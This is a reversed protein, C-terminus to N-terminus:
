RFTYARGASDIATITGAGNIDYSVVTATGTRLRQSRNRYLRGLNTVFAVTDNEAVKFSVVDEGTERMLWGGRTSGLAGDETRFFVTGHVSIKAAVIREWSAGRRLTRGNHDVILGREMIAVLTGNRSARFDVVREGNFQTRGNTILSRDARAAILAGSRSFAFAIVPGGRGDFWERARYNTGNKEALWLRGQVTRIAVGGTPAVRAEVAQDSHTFGDYVKEGDIMISGRLGVVAPGQRCDTPHARSPLNPFIPVSWEDRNISELSDDDYCTVVQAQASLSVLFCAAVFLKQM